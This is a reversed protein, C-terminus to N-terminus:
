NFIELHRGAIFNFRSDARTIQAAVKRVAKRHSSSVNRVVPISQSSIVSGAGEVPVRVTSDDSASNKSALGCVHGAAADSVFSQLENVLPVRQVNRSVNREAILEQIKWRGEVLRDHREFDFFESVFLRGHSSVFLSNKSSMRTSM